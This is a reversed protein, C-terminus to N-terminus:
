TIRLSTTRFNKFKYVVERQFTKDDTINRDINVVVDINLVPIFSVIGNFGDIERLKSEITNQLGTKNLTVKVNKPDFGLNVTTRTLKPKDDIAQKLIETAIKEINKM